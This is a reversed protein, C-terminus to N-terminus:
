AHVLWGHEHDDDSRHRRRFIRSLGTRRQRRREEIYIRSLRASLMNLTEREAETAEGNDELAQLSEVYEFVAHGFDALAEDLSDGVVFCDFERSRVVVDSGDVWYEADALPMGRHNVITLVRGSAPADMTPQGTDVAKM